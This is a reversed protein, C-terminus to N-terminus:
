FWTSFGLMFLVYHSKYDGQGIPSEEQQDAMVIPNVPDPGQRGGAGCGTMTATPNCPEAGGGINPNNPSGELLAGGGISVEFRRARFAAGATITTRAAGDLDARLWGTKATATDYGLGGRVIVENSEGNGRKAGVAIHYSGGARVGYSDKLGHKVVADNIPLTPVGNLYVKADIVVRYDSPTVCSGSDFDDGNCRKGWNEWDLDLEIDGKLTGAVDLFKYRGGIQATMPLALDVCGKQVDDTGGTACRIRDPQDQPGIKVTLGPLGASPGLQSIATGKAHVDLESSYNAGLEIAPTPRYTVGIGFGPVFGDKADITIIGDSKINEQYNPGPSAWLTTTSKLTAQGASLRVGADLNPLIRYAVALSPLIVAAEQKM